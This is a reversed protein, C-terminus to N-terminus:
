CNYNWQHMRKFIKRKKFGHITMKNKYVHDAKSGCNNVQCYGNSWQVAMVYSDYNQKTQRLNFTYTSIFLILLLINKM